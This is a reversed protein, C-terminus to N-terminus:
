EIGGLRTIVEDILADEPQLQIGDFLLWTECHSISEGPHLTTQPGLTELELFRPNCYCESSSDLDYYDKGSDYKAQKVFLTDELAYGLWGRPNPFGVKFAGQKFDAHLFIYRRGWVVRECDLESYPWLAFQRNPLLGHEDVLVSPMPLIGIGGPRFQTIAWPALEVAIQAHNQIHHEIHVVAKSNEPLTIIMSKQLGTTREVDQVVHLGNSTTTMDVPANDPYYTVAPREPAAWLRHGGRFHFRSGNSLEVMDEPLVAFLNDKGNLSLGLIRPGVSNTVWLALVDNSLRTCPYGAFDEQHVQVM